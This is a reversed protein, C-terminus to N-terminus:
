FFALLGAIHFLAGQYSKIAKLDYFVLVFDITHLVSQVSDLDITFVTMNIQSTTHM